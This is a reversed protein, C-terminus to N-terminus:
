DAAFPRVLPGRGSGAARGGEGYGLEALSEGILEDLLHLEGDDLGESRRNMDRVEVRSSLFQHPEERVSLECFETMADITAHPDAVYDEYRIEAYRGPAYLKAEERADRILADWQLAALALPSKGGARWRALEDDGLVGRWAVSHERWTGAWFDVKMLSRAVARGDRIVHMFYADPFADSLFGIRAPGTIKTAFRDKGQYRTLKGVLNRLGEREDPTPHAGMLTEYVFREGAYREWIRYGEVPGIRAKERWRRGSDSRPISKRAGPLRDALRGLVTISPWRAMRNLHQTFWALDPRAAFTNFIVTTGSRPVGIVFIPRDVPAPKVLV